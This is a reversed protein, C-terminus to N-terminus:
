MQLTTLGQGENRPTDAPRHRRLSPAVFATAAATAPLRVFEAIRRVAAEPDALALDYDVMLPRDIGHDILEAVTLAQRRTYDDIVVDCDAPSLWHRRAHLSAAAAAPDRVTTILRHAVHEGKGLGAAVHPM